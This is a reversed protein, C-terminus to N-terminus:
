SGAQQRSRCEISCFRACCRAQQLGVNVVRAAVDSLENLNEDLNGLSDFLFEDIASLGRLERKFRTYLRQHGIDRVEGIETTEEVAEAFVWGALGTFAIHARCEERSVALLLTLM